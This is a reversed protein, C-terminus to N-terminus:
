WSKLIRVSCSILFGVKRLGFRLYFMVISLNMYIISSAAILVKVDMLNFSVFRGTKTLILGLLVFTGLYSMSLLM